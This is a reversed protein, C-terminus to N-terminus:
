SRRAAPVAGMASEAARVHDLMTAEAASADGAAVADMVRQHQGFAVPIGVALLTVRRASEEIEAISHLMLSLVRNDAIEALARHFELDAVVAADADAAEGLKAHIVRLRGVDAKTALTAAKRAIAPELLTRVEALQRIGAVGRPLERMLVTRVASQPNNTVRVGVGHQVELLGQIELRKIAERLAARSVGLQEALAREPPLWKARRHDALLRDCIEKVLPPRRLSTPGPM